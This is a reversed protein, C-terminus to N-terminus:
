WITLLFADMFIKTREVYIIGQMSLFNYVPSCHILVLSLLFLLFISVCWMFQIGEKQHEKLHKAIPEAVTVKDKLFFQLPASTDSHHFSQTADVANCGPDYL